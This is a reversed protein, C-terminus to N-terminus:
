QIEIYDFQWMAVPSEAFLRGNDVEGWTMFNARGTLTHGGTAVAADFVSTWAKTRSSYYMDYYKEGDEWRRVKIAHM